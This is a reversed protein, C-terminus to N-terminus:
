DSIRYFHMKAERIGKIKITLRLDYTVDYNIFAYTSM